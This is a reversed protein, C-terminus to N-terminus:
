RDTQVNTKEPFIFEVPGVYDQGHIEEETYGYQRMAQNLLGQLFYDEENVREWVEVAKAKRITDNNNLDHYWVVVIIM